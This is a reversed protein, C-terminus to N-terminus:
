GTVMTIYNSTIIPLPTNIFGGLQIGQWYATRNALVPDQPIPLTLVVQGGTNPIAGILTEQSAYVSCGPAGFPTLDLPLVIGGLWIADSLGLVFYGPLTNTADTTLTLTISAGRDPCGSTTLTLPANGGGACGSGAPITRGTCFSLSFVFTTSLSNDVVSLTSSVPDYHLGQTNTVGFSSLDTTSLLNGMRDFEWVSTGSSQVVLFHDNAPVHTIGNLFTSGSPPTFVFGGPLPNGALDWQSVAATSTIWLSNTNRDYGIGAVNSTPPSFTWGSICTGTRDMELVVNGTNDVIWLHDTNPDYAVDNPSPATPTCTTTTFQSLFNGTPDFEHMTQTNSFDVVYFNGVVEDRTVGINGNGGAMTDVFSFQFTLPLQASSVATLTALSLCAFLTRRSLM